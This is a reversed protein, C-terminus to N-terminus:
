CSRAQGRILLQKFLVERALGSRCIKFDPWKVHRQGSREQFLLLLFSFCQM